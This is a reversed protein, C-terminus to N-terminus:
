RIESVSGPYPTVSGPNSDAPDTPPPRGDEGIWDITEPKCSVADQILIGYLEVQLSDLRQRLVPLGGPHPGPMAAIFGALPFEMLNREGAIIANIIRTGSEGTIDSIVNHLQINMQTLCKQMRNIETSCQRILTDRHRTITRLPKVRADIQFSAQLLGYTHLEQLWQCDKVDTKRGPVSKSKRANVLFVEIGNAELIRFVPIWYVSTSEMAVTDIKCEKLWQLLEYLDQTFCGFSRIREKSRGAPVAVYHKVSGIDIGAANPHCIKLGEGKKHKQM